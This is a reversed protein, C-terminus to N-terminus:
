IWKYNFISWFFFFLRIMLWSIHIGTFEGFVTQELLPIPSLWRPHCLECLCTSLAAAAGVLLSRLTITLPSSVNGTFAASSSTYCGTAPIFFSTERCCCNRRGAAWGCLSKRRDKGDPIVIPIEPAAGDASRSGSESTRSSSERKGAHRRSSKRDCMLEAFDGQNTKRQREGKCDSAWSGDAGEALAAALDSAGPCGCWGSSLVWKVPQSTKRATPSRTWFSAM